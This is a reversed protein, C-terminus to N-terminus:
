DTESELRVHKHQDEAIRAWQGTDAVLRMHGQIAQLTRSVEAPDISPAYVQSTVKAGGSLVRGTLVTAGAAVTVEPVMVTSDATGTYKDTVIGRTAVKTPM